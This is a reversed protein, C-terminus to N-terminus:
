ITYNIIYLLVWLIVLPCIIIPLWSGDQGLCGARSIILIWGYRSLLTISIALISCLHSHSLLHISISYIIYIYLYIPAQLHWSRPYVISTNNTDHLAPTCNTSPNSPIQCIPHLHLPHYLHSHYLWPHSNNSIIAIIICLYYFSYLYSYLLLIYVFM